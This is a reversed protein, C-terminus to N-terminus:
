RSDLYNQLIEAASFADEDRRRKQGFGQEIMTQLARKSSLVESATEVDFGDKKLAKVFGIVSKGMKGQPLGIVIKEFGGSKIIESTKSLADSFNKVELIKWPSALEGESIALGIKRLGYDIGLFKM